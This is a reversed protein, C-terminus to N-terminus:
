CRRLDCTKLLLEPLQKNGM